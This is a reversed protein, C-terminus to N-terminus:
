NIARLLYVGFSSEEDDLWLRVVSWGAQQLLAEILVQPYKHSNETHITEGAQFEFRREAVQVQQPCLSVLHMEVRHQAANFFARHAFRSLDFDADLERNIRALLNLNFQATVGSADDYAAELKAQDQTM